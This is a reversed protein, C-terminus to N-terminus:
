LDKLSLDTQGGTASSRQVTPPIPRLRGLLVPVPVIKSVSSISKM